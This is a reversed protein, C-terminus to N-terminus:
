NRRIGSTRRQDRCANGRGLGRRRPSGSVGRLGRTSARARSRSAGGLPDVRSGRSSALDEDREHARPSAPVLRRSFDSVEHSAQRERTASRILSGSRQGECRRRRRDGQACSRLEAHVRQPRNAANAPPAMGNRSCDGGWGNAASHGGVLFAPLAIGLRRRAFRLGEDPFPITETHFAKADARGRPGRCSAGPERPPDHRQYLPTAGACVGLSARRPAQAAHARRAAGVPPDNFTFAPYPPADCANQRSTRRHIV